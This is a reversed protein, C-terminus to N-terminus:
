SPVALVKSYVVYNAGPGVLVRSYENHKADPGAFVMSHEASQQRVLEDQAEKLDVPDVEWCSYLEWDDAEKAKQQALSLSGHASITELYEM